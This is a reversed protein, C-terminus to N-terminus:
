KGICFSSFIRDLIEDGIGQGTVGGIREIADRLDVMVLEGSAGDAFAQRARTLSSSAECLCAMHRANTIGMEDALGTGLLQGAIARELEPLGQRTKASVPLTLRGRDSFAELRGAIRGTSALDAKNLVAIAPCVAPGPELDGNVDFVQLVIDAASIEAEAREIGIREAEDSAERLGATDVLTVAVGQLDVTCEITDRTTGPHPTVIAREMGVLANFLMSKGANVPGAIVVRAGERVHRGSQFGKVLYALAEGAEALVCEVNNREDPELDEDPFDLVAEISAAAALLQSRIAQIRESVGGRLQRLALRRALSTRAAILDAIAEAQALDLRGNLFARKSFEGPAALRAGAAVCADLIASVVARGGHCHFEACDEGTFSRPRRMVVGFAEDAAEGEAGLVTGLVMQQNRMRDTQLGSNARFLKRFVDIAQPGSLRVIALAAEGLGTSPAAITDENPSM